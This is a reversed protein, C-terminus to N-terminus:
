KKRWLLSEKALPLKPRASKAPEKRLADALRSSLAALSAALKVDEVVVSEPVRLSVPTYNWIARIGARILADAAEQAAAAPVTLIGILIHMRKALNPLRAMAFVEKGHISTGIKKPDVDFGALVNLNFEAFGEYGLLAAGLCGV